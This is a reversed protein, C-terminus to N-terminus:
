MLINYIYLQMVDFGGQQLHSKQRNKSMKGQNKYFTTTQKCDKVTPIQKPCIQM